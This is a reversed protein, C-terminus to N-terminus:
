AKTVGVCLFVCNCLAELARVGRNTTRQLEPEHFKGSEGKHELDISGKTSSSLRRDRGVLGVEPRKLENHGISRGIAEILTAADVFLSRIPM